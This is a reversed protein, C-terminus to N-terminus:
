PPCTRLDTFAEWVMTEQTPAALLGAQSISSTVDLNMSTAPYGSFATQDTNNPVSNFLTYTVQATIPWSVNVPFPNASPTVGISVMTGDGTNQLVITDPAGQSWFSFQTITTTAMATFMLGHLSADTDPTSLGGLGLPRLLDCVSVNQSLMSSCRTTPDTVTLLASYIGYSSWSVAQNAMTSTAPTGNSFMWAYNEGGM